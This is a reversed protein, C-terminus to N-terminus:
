KIRPFLKTDFVIMSYMYNDLASIVISKTKTQNSEKRDRTLCEVM